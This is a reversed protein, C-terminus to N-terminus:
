LGREHPLLPHEPHSGLADGVYLVDGGTLDFYRDTHDLRGNSDQYSRTLSQIASVAETGDPKTSGDLHPAAAMTLSERYSGVTDERSVITPGTPTHTSTNWGPYVRVEHIPDNYVTYTVHNKPDTMAITRGLTDPTYQTILHLGGGSPTSWGSPKNAFDGTNATNVDQISKTVAGTAIDYENYRIFNDADKLWTVNGYTDFYETEVNSSGSGHHTTNVAPKTTTRSLMQNTGSYWTYAYTTALAGTGDASPYITTGAIPYTIVEPTAGNSRAFYSTSSVLIDTGTEGHRVAESKPYGGVDGVTTNTATTADGYTYVHILGAGDQLYPSNGSNAAFGLLDDTTDDWLPGTTVFASPEVQMILRAQSDYKYFTPTDVHSSSHNSPDSYVRHVMLMVQGVYNTYVINQNHDPLEEVVKQKWVNYGDYYSGHTNVTGRDYTTAVRAAASGSCSCGAGQALEKTVRKVPTTSLTTTPLPPGVPRQDGGDSRCHQQGDGWATLREYSERSVYYKVCHPNGNSEGSVGTVTTSRKWCM